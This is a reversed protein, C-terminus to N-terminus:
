CAFTGLIHRLLFVLNVNQARTHKQTETHSREHKPKILISREGSYEFHINQQRIYTQIVSDNNGPSLRLLSGSKLATLNQKQNVGLALLRSILIHM